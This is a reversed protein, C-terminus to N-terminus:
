SPWCGKTKNWKHTQYEEHPHLVSSTQDTQTLCVNIVVSIRFEPTRLFLYFTFMCLFHTHTQAGVTNIHTTCTLSRSPHLLWPKGACCQVPVLHDTDNVECTLPKFNRSILAHILKDPWNIQGTIVMFNCRIWHLKCDLLCFCQGSHKFFARQKINVSDLTKWFPETWSKLCVGHTYLVDAEFLLSCVICCVTLQHKKGRFQSIM